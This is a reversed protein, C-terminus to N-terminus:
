INNKNTLEKILWELETRATSIIAEYGFVKMRPPDDQQLAAVERGKGLMLIEISGAGFRSGLDDRYEQAQRQDDRTIDKSPRKFEILLYGGRLNKGLFLDPRKAARKGTYKEECYAEMTKSLTKNSSILSYEYGLLWLNKEIVGHVTKELTELKRILADFNDLIRLRYRAQNAMMSMDLLGFEELAAAFLEVDGNKSDDIHKLVQWYEDRELADLVVNAVTTIRADSESSFRKMVRELALKAYKRRHEPMAALRQHYRKMVRASALNVEKQHVKKVGSRLLPRVWADVAQFAKSSEIVTDGGFTVTLGDAEIEGYVKQLLKNPIDEATDLGFYAPKGIIKSGVRIAIGSNKLRQKGYAVKFRLRVLGVDPLEIEEYFSEGPLDEMSLLQDNVYIFFDSERGYELMLLQRMIDADPYSLGQNLHTLTITVGHEDKACINTSVQLPIQELDKPASLIEQKCIIISTAVGRACAVLEMVDAAMLGAFKGIGKRGKVKRKKKPTLLGNGTRRDRAVVLYSKRLEQGTMGAGDDRIIIAGNTVPDPLTIWVNDADADWANDVLEKLAQETSRYTEGLLAALRPDVKFNAKKSM